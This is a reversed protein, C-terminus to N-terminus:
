RGPRYDVVRREGDGRGTPKVTPIALCEALLADMSAHLAACRDFLTRVPPEDALQDAVSPHVGWDRRRALGSVVSKSVGFRAGIDASRHGAQWLVRAEAEWPRVVAEGFAM